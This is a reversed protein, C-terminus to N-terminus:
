QWCHGFRGKGASLHHDNIALLLHRDFRIGREIRKILECSDVLAYSFDNQWDFEPGEILLQKYRTTDFKSINTQAESFVREKYAETSHIAM